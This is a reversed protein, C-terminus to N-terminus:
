GRAVRARRLTRARTRRAARVADREADGVVAAEIGDDRADLLDERRAGDAIRDEGLDVRELREIRLGIVRARPEDRFTLGAATGHHIEAAM